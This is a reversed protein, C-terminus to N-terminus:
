ENKVYTEFTYLDEDCDFCQYSYEELLESEAVKSDCRKCFRNEIYKVENM